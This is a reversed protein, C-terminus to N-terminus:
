GLLNQLQIVVDCQKWRQQQSLDATQTLFHQQPTICHVAHTTICLEINLFIYHWLYPSDSLLPLAIFIKQIYCVTLAINIKKPPGKEKKLHSFYTKSSAGDIATCHKAETSTSRDAEGFQSCASGFRSCTICQSHIVVEYLGVEFFLFQGMLM